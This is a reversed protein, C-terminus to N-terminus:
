QAYKQGANAILISQLNLSGRKFKYALPLAYIMACCLAIPVMSTLSSAYIGSIIGFANLGYLIIVTLPPLICIFANIQYATKKILGLKYRGLIAIFSGSVCIFFMFCVLISTLSLMIRVPVNTINLISTATQRSADTGIFIFTFMLALSGLFMLFIALIISSGVYFSIKINKKINSPLNVIWVNLNLLWVYLNPKM